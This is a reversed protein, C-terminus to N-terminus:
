KREHILRGERRISEAHAPHIRELEVLDVPLRTLREAGAAADLGALPDTLGEVAIDIDSIESFREPHLLSGWQYIRLPRYERILYQVIRDFDRRAEALREELLRKRRAERRRVFARVTEIDSEKVPLAYARRVLYDIM